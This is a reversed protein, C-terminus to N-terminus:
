QQETAISNEPTPLPRTNVEISSAALYLAMVGSLVIGIVLMMMRNSIDVLQERNWLAEPNNTTPTGYGSMFDILSLGGNQLRAVRFAAAADTRMTSETGIVVNTFLPRGKHDQAQNGNNGTVPLRVVHLKRLRDFYSILFIILTGFLAAGIAFILYNQKNITLFTIAILAFAPARAGVRVMFPPAEHILWTWQSLRGIAKALLLSFSCSLAAAIAIIAAFPKFEILDM